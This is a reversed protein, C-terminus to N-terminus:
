TVIVVCRCVCLPVAQRHTFRLEQGIVRSESSDVSVNEIDALLYFETGQWNHIQEKSALISYM